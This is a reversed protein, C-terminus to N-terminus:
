ASISSEIPQVVRHLVLPLHLGLWRRQTQQSKAFTPQSKAFHTRDYFFFIPWNANPAYLSLLVQRHRCRCFLWASTCTDALPIEQRTCWALNPGVREPGIANTAMSKSPRGRKLYHTLELGMEPMKCTAIQNM